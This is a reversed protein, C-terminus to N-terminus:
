FLHDDPQITVIHLGEGQACQGLCAVKRWACTFAGKLLAEVSRRLFVKLPPTDQSCHAEKCVLIEGHYFNGGTTPEGVVAVKRFLETSCSTIGRPFITGFALLFLILVM